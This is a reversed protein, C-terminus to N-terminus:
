RERLPTTASYGYQGILREVDDDVGPERDHQLCGLNPLPQRRPRRSGVRGCVASLYAYDYAIFHRCTFCGGIPLPPVAFPGVPDARVAVWVYDGRPVCEAAFKIAARGRDPVEVDVTAPHTGHGPAPLRKAAARVIAVPVLPLVGSPLHQQDHM